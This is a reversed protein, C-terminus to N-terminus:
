NSQVKPVTAFYVLPLVGVNSVSCYYLGRLTTENLLFLLQTNRSITVLKRKSMCLISKKKEGKERQFLIYTILPPRQFM